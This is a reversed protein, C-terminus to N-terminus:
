PTAEGASPTRWRMLGDQDKQYRGRTDDMLFREIQDLTADFACTGAGEVVVNCDDVLRYCGYMAGRPDRTRSKELRLLQRQAMRRLRNERVKETETM